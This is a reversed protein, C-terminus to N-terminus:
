RRNIPVLHGLERLPSLRAAPWRAEMEAMAVADGEARALYWRSAVVDEDIADAHPALLERAEDLRGQDVRVRSRLVDAEFGVLKTRYKRQFEEDANDLNGLRREIEAALLRAEIGREVKFEARLAESAGVPDDLDLWSYAKLRLLEDSARGEREWLACLADFDDIRGERLAIAAEAFMSSDKDRDIVLLREIVEDAGAHDGAQHLDIALANLVRLNGPARELALMDFYLADDVYGLRAACRSAALAASPKFPRTHTYPWFKELAEECRGLRTQAVAWGVWAAVSQPDSETRKKYQAAASRVRGAGLLLDGFPAGGRGGRGAAKGEAKGAAKGAAKGEAKGEAKRTTTAPESASARGPAAPFGALAVVLALSGLWFWRRM